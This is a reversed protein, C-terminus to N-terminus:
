SRTFGKNFYVAGSDWIIQDHNDIKKYVKVGEQNVPAFVHINQIMKTIINELDKKSILKDM